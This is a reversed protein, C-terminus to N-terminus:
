CVRMASVSQVPPSLPQQSCIGPVKQRDSQSDCVSQPWSLGVRNTPLAPLSFWTTLVEWSYGKALSWHSNTSWYGLGREETPLVRYRRGSKEVLILGWDGVITIQEFTCGKNVEKEERDWKRCEGVMAEQFGRGSLSSFGVDKDWPQIRPSGLRFCTIFLGSIHGARM